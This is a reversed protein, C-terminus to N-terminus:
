LLAGLPKASAIAATMDAAVDSWTRARFQAAILSEQARRAEPDHILRDLAQAMAAQDSPDVYLAFAGGVEPLATVNSTLCVKGEALAEGVPLGWGEALSPYATFLCGRYLANLQADSINELWLVEDPPLAGSRLDATLQGNRWGERGVLVLQPIDDHTKRLERLAGILALHNKRPEITGVCLIFAGATLGAPLEAAEDTRAYAHALPVPLVPIPPPSDMRALYGEVQGATYRSNTVIFDWRELGRRLSAEFARAAGEESIATLIIPFLDHIMVGFAAGASKITDALGEAVSASWFAGLVLYVSGAGPLFATASHKAHEILRRARDLDVEGKQAYALLARLRAPDLRWPWDFEAFCFQIEASDAGPIGGDALAAAILELQVRQIGTVFGHDWTFILLDSIDFVITKSASARVRERLLDPNRDTSVFYGHPVSAVVDVVETL